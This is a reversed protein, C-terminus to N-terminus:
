TTTKINVRIHASSIATKRSRRLIFPQNM